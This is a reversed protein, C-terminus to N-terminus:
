NPIVAALAKGLAEKLAGDDWPKLLPADIGLRELDAPEVAHPGATLLLRAAWPQRRGVEALLETGRMVPMTQDCLVLDVRHTELWALAPGPGCALLLSYGERRLSRRLASLIHPEDDVILITPSPSATADGIREV